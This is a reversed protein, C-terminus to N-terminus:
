RDRRRRSPRSGFAQEYEAVFRTMNSFGWHRAIKGVTGPADPARLASRVAELRVRKLYSHPTMGLQDQFALQLARVGIGAAKAVDHISVPAPQAAIFDLTQRLQWSPQRTPREDLWDRYGPVAEVISMMAADRLLALSHSAAAPVADTPVTEKIATTLAMISRLGIAATIRTLGIDTPLLIRRDFLTEAFAEIDAKALSVICTDAGPHFLSGVLTASNYIAATGTCIELSTEGRHFSAVGRKVICMSVTDLTDTFPCEMGHDFSAAVVRLPGILRTSARADFCKRDLPQVDVRRGLSSRMYARTEDIDKSSLTTVSATAVALSM